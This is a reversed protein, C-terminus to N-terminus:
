LRISPEKLCVALAPVLNGPQIPLLDEFELYEHLFVQPAEPLYEDGLSQAPVSFVHALLTPNSDDAITVEYFRTIAM